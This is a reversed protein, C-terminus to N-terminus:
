ERERERERRVEGAVSQAALSPPEPSRRACKIARETDRVSFRELWHGVLPQRAKLAVLRERCIPVQLNYAALEWRVTGEVNGVVNEAAYKARVVRARDGRKAAPIAGVARM